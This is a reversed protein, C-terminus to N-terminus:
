IELAYSFISLLFINVHLQLLLRNILNELIVHNQFLM